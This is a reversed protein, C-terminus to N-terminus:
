CGTGESGGSGVPLFVCQKLKREPPQLIFGLYGLTKSM